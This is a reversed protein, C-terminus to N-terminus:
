QELETADALYAALDDIQPALYPLPVMLGTERKPTYGPPYEAGLVRAELLARSSGAVAPGLTGDLEPNQHHCATCNAAYVRRGREAPTEEGGACGALLLTLALWWAAQSGPDPDPSM